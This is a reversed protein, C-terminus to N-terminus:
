VGRGRPLLGARHTFISVAPMCNSAESCVDDPHRLIAVMHKFAFDFNSTSIQEDLYTVGFIHPNEFAYHAFIMYMHVYFIRWRLRKRIQHLPKLPSSRPHQLLLIRVKSLSVPSSVKPRYPVSGPACAVYRFFYHLFVQLMM